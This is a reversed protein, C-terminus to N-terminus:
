NNELILNKLEFIQKELVAFFLERKEKSTPNTWNDLIQSDNTRQKLTYIQKNIQIECIQWYCAYGAARRMYANYCIVDGKIGQRKLFLKVNKEFIKMGRENFTDYIYSNVNLIAKQETREM